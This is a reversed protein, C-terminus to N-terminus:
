RNGSVFVSHHRNIPMNIVSTSLYILRSGTAPPTCITRYSASTREPHFHELGGTKALEDSSVSLLIGLIVQGASDGSMSIM